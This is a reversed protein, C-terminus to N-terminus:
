VFAGAASIPGGDRVVATAVPMTGLTLDSRAVTPDFCTALFQEGSAVDMHDERKGTMQGRQHQLVPLDEVIEQKACARFSKEFDSSIGLTETRFDAKEAHQVAPTLFEFSVRMDM